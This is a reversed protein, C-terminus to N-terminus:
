YRNRAEPEGQEAAGQRGGRAGSTGAGSPQPAAETCPFTAVTACPPLLAANNPRAQSLGRWDRVKGRENKEDKQQYSTCTTAGMDGAFHGTDTITGSLQSNVAKGRHFQVQIKPWQAGTAGVVGLGVGRLDKGPTPKITTQEVFGDEQSDNRNIFGCGNTVNLWKVTGLVKRSTIRYHRLPVWM